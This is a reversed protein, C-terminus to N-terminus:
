IRLRLIKFDKTKSELDTPHQHPLIRQYITKHLVKNNTKLKNYLNYNILNDKQKKDKYKKRYIVWIYSIM